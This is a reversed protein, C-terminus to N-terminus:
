KIKEKVESLQEDFSNKDLNSGFQEISGIVGEVDVAFIIKEELPGYSESQFYIDRKEDDISFTYTDFAKCGYEELCGFTNGNANLEIKKVNEPIDLSINHEELKEWFVLLIHNEEVSVDQINEIYNVGTDIINEDKICFEYSLEGANFQRSAEFFLISEDLIKTNTIEILQDSKINLFEKKSITHQALMLEKIGGLSVKAM